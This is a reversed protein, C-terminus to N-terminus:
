CGKEARGCPLRCLGFDDVPGDPGSCVRIHWFRVPAASPGDAAQTVEYGAIKLHNELVQRKVPEDDVVLVTMKEGDGNSTVLPKGGDDTLVGASTIENVVDLDVVQEGEAEVHHIIAGKGDDEIDEVEARSEASLALTFTFISGEGVESEVWIKGGHLEVLSKTVSLGLGTGGFERATSGDGQEFSKFISDFKDKPIGIGSDSISIELNDEVVNAYMRVHGSETFKIGNAILNHLIQQVRNEDADVLPVDKPIDNILKLEKDAVLPRSLAYVEKVMAYMDIPKKQLELDTGKLKSFDLIDNVLNALRRGSNAIM